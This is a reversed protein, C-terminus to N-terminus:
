PRTQYTLADKSQALTLKQAVVESLIPEAYDWTVGYVEEFADVFKKGRAIRQDVAFFSESGAIAVLAEIAATGASYALAYKRTLHCPQVSAEKLYDSIESATWITQTPQSFELGFFTLYYPHLHQMDIYESFTQSVATQAFEVEGEIMWCPQYGVQKESFMQAQITHAYEHAAGHDSEIHSRPNSTVPCFNWVVGSAAGIPQADRTNRGTDTGECTPRVFVSGVPQNTNIGYMDDISRKMFSNKSYLKDVEAFTQVKEEVTTAIYFVQQAHPYKAFLSFTRKM